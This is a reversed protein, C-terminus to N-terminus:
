SQDEPNQPPPPPLMQSPWQLVNPNIHDPFPPSFLANDYLQQQQQPFDEPTMSHDQFPDAQFSSSRSEHALLEDQFSEESQQIRGPFELKTDPPVDNNVTPGRSSCCGSPTTSSAQSPTFSAGTGLMAPNFFHERNCANQWAGTPGQGLQPCMNCTCDRSACSSCPFQGRPNLAPMNWPAQAQASPDLSPQASGCNQTPAPAAQASYTYQLTPPFSTFSQPTPPLATPSDGAMSMFQRASVPMFETHAGIVVNNPTLFSGNFPGNFHLNQLEPRPNWPAPPLSNSMAQSMAPPPTERAPQFQNFHALQGSQYVPLMDNAYGSPMPHNAMMLPPPPQQRIPLSPIYSANFQAEAQAQAEEFAQRRAADANHHDLEQQSQFM